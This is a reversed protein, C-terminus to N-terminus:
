PKPTRRKRARPVFRIRDPDHRACLRGQGALWTKFTLFEGLIQRCPKGTKTTGSCRITGQEDLYRQFTAKNVQYHDALFKIEDTLYLHLDDISLDEDFETFHPWDGVELSFRVGHKRMQELISKDIDM